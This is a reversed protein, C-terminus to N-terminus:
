GRRSLRRSPVRNISGGKTALNAKMKGWGFTWGEDDFCVNVTGGYDVEAGPKGRTRVAKVSLTDGIWGGETEESPLEGLFYKAENLNAQILRTQAKVRKSSQLDGRESYVIFYGRFNTPISVNVVEM